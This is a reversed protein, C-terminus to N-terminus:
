VVSKRDLGRLAQGWGGARVSAQASTKAAVSLQAASRLGLIGLIADMYLALVLASLVLVIDLKVEWAAEGMIRPKTQHTASQRILEFVFHVLVVAVLWFLSIFISLLVALAVYSLVFLWSEDHRHIWKIVPSQSM